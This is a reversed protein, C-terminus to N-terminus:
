SCLVYMCIYMRVYMAVYIIYVNFSPQRQHINANIFIIFFDCFFNSNIRLFINSATKNKITAFSFFNLNNQNVNTALNYASVYCTNKYGLVGSIPHVNPLM